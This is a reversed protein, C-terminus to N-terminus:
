YPSSTESPATSGGTRFAGALDSAARSLLTTDVGVAVFGCGLEIFRRAMERDAYLIGAAKGCSRIVAIAHSIASQVEPHGTDGLHGLAGALDAPGIFVGDVGPTRAIAELNELGALTEVQVLLCMQEDATQLYRDVKQWRSARALASGVGRAGLPPYRM